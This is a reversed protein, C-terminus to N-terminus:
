GNSVRKAIVFLSETNMSFPDTATVKYRIEKIKLETSEPIIETSRPNLMHVKIEDTALRSSVNSGDLQKSLMVNGRVILTKTTSESAIGDVVFQTKTIIEIPETFNRPDFRGSRSM